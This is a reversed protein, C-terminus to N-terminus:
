HIHGGNIQWFGILDFTYIYLIFLAALESSSSSSSSTTDSSRAENIRTSLHGGGVGGDGNALATSQMAQLSWRHLSAFSTANDGLQVVGIALSFLFLFNLWKADFAVFPPFTSVSITSPHPRSQNDLRCTANWLFDGVMGPGSKLCLKVDATAISDFLLLLLLAVDNYIYIDIMCM